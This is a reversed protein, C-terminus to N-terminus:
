AFTDVLGRRIPPVGQPADAGPETIAIGARARPFGSPRPDEGEGQKSGAFSEASVTVHGMAIGSEAFLEKLRPLSAEIAERVAAHPSAFQVAAETGRDHNLTLVIELPGLHPPNLRLEATQHQQAAMWLVQQAFERPWGAAGLPTHIGPLAAPTSAGPASSPAHPLAVLPIHQAPIPQSRSFPDAPLDPRAPLRAEAEGALFPLTKGGSALNAPSEPPAALAPDGVPIPSRGPFGSAAHRPDVPIGAGSARAPEPAADHASVVGPSSGGPVLADRLPSDDLPTPIPVFADSRGADGPDPSNREDKPMAETPLLDPSAEPAATEFAETLHQLLLAIFGTDRLARLPQGAAAAARSGPGADVVSASPSDPLTNM